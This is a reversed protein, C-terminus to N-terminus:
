LLGDAGRPGLLTEAVQFDEPTDVDTLVARPWDVFLAEDRHRQVVAKGCGEGTWDMLEGFLARRFL